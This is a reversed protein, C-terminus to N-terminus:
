STAHSSFGPEFRELREFREFRKLDFDTGFMKFPQFQKVTQVRTLARGPPNM